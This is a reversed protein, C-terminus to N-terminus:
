VHLGGVTVLITILYLVMGGVLYVKRVWGQFQKPMLSILCWAAVLALAILALQMYTADRNAIAQLYADYRPTM